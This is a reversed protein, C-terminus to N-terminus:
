GPTSCAASSDFQMIASMVLREERPKLSCMGNSLAEPLMPVARDLFYVSNGRLRAERDLPSEPTVYHAVDAIHVQLLWGGDERREVYVADDFDRATEGDITVIPLSRFDERGAFESESVPRALEEAEHSVEGPFTHPLHHKRVIIETDVGLDGPRGLIEIVRGIPSAGDRAYRVLEANVVAGDLKPIHALRPRKGPREKEGPLLQERLAPSLEEGAPLEIEHQVRPDYPVVVCGRSSYRFLGVVSPHARSVIRLIRGEARRAGPAGSLRSVKAIVHDGHMADEVFDRPIFLDGDLNPIAVDPVVFGYGDQHLVLRGKIEDRSVAKHQPFKEIHQEPSPLPKSSPQQPRSSQRLLFRGQSLEEVLGRKKLKALMQLLARRSSKKVQLSRSLDEISAPANRLQLFRLINDPSLQSQRSM